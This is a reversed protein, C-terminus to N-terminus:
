RREDKPIPAPPLRNRLDTTTLLTQRVRDDGFRTVLDKLALRCQLFGAQRAAQMLGVEQCVFPQAKADNVDLQKNLYQKLCEDWGDRHVAAYMARCHNMVAVTGGKEYYSLNEPIDPPVTVKYVLKIEDFGKAPVTGSSTPAFM